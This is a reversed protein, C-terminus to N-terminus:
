STSPSTAGHAGKRTDSALQVVESLARECLRELALPKLERLIKWDSEIIQNLM